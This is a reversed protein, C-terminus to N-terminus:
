RNRCDVSLPRPVVRVRSEGGAGDADRASGYLVLTRGAVKAPESVFCTVGTFSGWGDDDALLLDKLEVRCVPEGTAEDTLSLVVDVDDTRMGKARVSTWVHQGGQPGCVVDVAQGDDFSVFARVGGGVEVVPGCAGCALGVWLLAGRRMM